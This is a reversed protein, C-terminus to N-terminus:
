GELLGFFSGDSEDIEKCVEFKVVYVDSALVGVISTMLDGFDSDSMEEVEDAATMLRRKDIQRAVTSHEVGLHGATVLLPFSSDVCSFLSFNMDPLDGIRFSVGHKSCGLYISSEDGDIFFSLRDGEGRVMSSLILEVGSTDGQDVDVFVKFRLKAVGDDVHFEFREEGLLWPLDQVFKAKGQIEILQSVREGSTM